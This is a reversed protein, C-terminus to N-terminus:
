LSARYLARSTSFYEFAQLITQPSFLKQGVQKTGMSKLNEALIEKKHDM